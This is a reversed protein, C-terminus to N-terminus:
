GPEDDDTMGEAQEINALAMNDLVDARDRDTLVAVANILKRCMLTLVPNAETGMDTLLDSGRRFEAHDGSDMLRIARVVTSFSDEVRSRGNIM